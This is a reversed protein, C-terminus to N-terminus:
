KLAIHMGENALIAEPFVQRAENLLLKDDDYRTSFHGLLLQKAEALKAMRGAESATSHGVQHAHEEETTAYTAEHYLLSLNRLLPANEPCFGTDSCYAYSRPSRAPRVLRMHPIVEGEATIWDAGEKIDRIAYHPIKYFDIMDPLIHPLPQAEDFRYGCCPVRHRLPITTVKFSKEELICVSEETPVVHLNVPFTIAGSYFKLQPVFYDVIGQPGYIEIPATRKQLSLTSLLGMLGFCHDGHLHSIFIGRLRAFSLGAKRFQIQSGEGCDIMYLWSHIDVVQCAPNHRCSPIASGCGLIYIDFIDM